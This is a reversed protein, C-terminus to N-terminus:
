TAWIRPICPSRQNLMYRLQAWVSIFGTKAQQASNGIYRVVVLSDVLTICFEPSANLSKRVIDIAEITMNNLLLTGAVSCGRQGTRKSLDHAGTIRLRDMFVPLGDVLVNLKNCAWGQAFKEDGAPRGFCQIDWMALAADHRIDVTTSLDAVCGNFFINEQPFWELSGGHVELRQELTSRLGNSRYFKTAGPTTVLGAANKETSVDISLKDGGM